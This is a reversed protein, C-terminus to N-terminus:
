RHVLPFAHPRYVNSWGGRTYCGLDTGDNRERSSWRTSWPCQVHATGIRIGSSISRFFADGPLCHSVSRHGLGFVSHNWVMKTSVSAFGPREKVQAAGRAGRRGTLTVSIARVAAEGIKKRLAETEEDTADDKKTRRKKAEGTAKRKKKKPDADDQEDEDDDGISIVESM